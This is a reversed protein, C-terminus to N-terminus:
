TDGTNEGFRERIINRVLKPDTYVGLGGKINTYFETLRGEYISSIARALSDVSTIGSMDGHAAVMRDVVDSSNLRAHDLAA